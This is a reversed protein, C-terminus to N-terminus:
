SEKIKEAFELQLQKQFTGGGEHGPYPWVVLDKPGAYHNHVAFGTHPPCVEDRLAVSFLAPIRARVAFQLGDFYDLTAFARTAHEPHTRCYRALEVYPDAETLEVAHRIDSLFPVDALLAAVGFGRRPALISAALAIAAGQSGGHLLIREADIEPHGHAFEVARVADAFVRRYYHHLPDLVGRTLFGSVQPAHDGVPDPTDTGQGRTDVVLQAYGAASWLLRDIPLGRGGTYGIYEIVCPMRGPVNEPIQLWARIEQGGFGRFTVDFVRVTRLPGAVPVCEPALAFAATETLTHDWFTDFDGPEQRAPRYGRLEAEDIGFLMSTM